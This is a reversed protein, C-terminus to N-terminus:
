DHTMRLLPPRTPPFFDLRSHASLLVVHDDKGCHSKFTAPSLGSHPLSDQRTTNAFSPKGVPVFNTKFKQCLRLRETSPFLVTKFRKLRNSSPFLIANCRRLRNSQGM